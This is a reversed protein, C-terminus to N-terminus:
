KCRKSYQSECKLFLEVETEGSRLDDIGLDDGVYKVRADHLNLWIYYFGGYGTPMEVGYHSSILFLPLPMNPM